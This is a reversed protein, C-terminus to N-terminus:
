SRLASSSSGFTEPGVYAATLSIAVLIFASNIRLALESSIPKVM